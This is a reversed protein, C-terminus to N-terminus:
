NLITFPDTNKVALTVFFLNHKSGLNLIPFGAYANIPGQISLTVSTLSEGLMFVLLILLVLLVLLVSSSRLLVEVVFELLGIIDFVVEELLIVLMEVSVFVVFEVVGISGDIGKM